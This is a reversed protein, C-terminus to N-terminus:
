GMSIKRIKLLVMFSWLIMMYELQHNLKEKYGSPFHEKFVTKNMKNEYKVKILIATKM